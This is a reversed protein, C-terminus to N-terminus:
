LRRFGTPERQAMKSIRAIAEAVPEIATAMHHANAHLLRTEDLMVGVHGRWFVLDNRQLGQRGVDTTFAAFQMDTDRPCTRGCAYLAQQVLGSCDIGDGGRGGWLYPAGVFREAVSAPDDLYDGILSLHDAYIWGGGEVRAFLGDRDEVVVLSNLTLSRLPASKLDAQSFAFTRLASVWHTPEPRGAGLDSLDVWGVYGDRRAQGFAFGAQTELVDFAEGFIIQDEQEAVDDPASRIAAAGARAHMLVLEDYRGASVLGQLSCAALDGRRLTLRRDSM